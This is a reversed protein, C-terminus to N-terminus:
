GVPMTLLVTTGENPTSQISLGYREGYYLRLRHQVNLIGISTGEGQEGALTARLKQLRESSMGAGNDGVTVHLTDGVQRAAVEIRGHGECAEVGHLVANEVLPQLTFKLIHVRELEQPISINYSLRNQFRLKQMRLYDEVLEKEQSLEILDTKWDISKRILRSFSVIIDSTEHDKKKLVNTRISELCNFLFHPNMQSQLAKIEADKAKLEMNKAHLQSRYVEDILARIRELMESFSRSLVGIEDMADDAPKVEFDDNRVSDMRRMLRNVRRSFKRTFVVILLIDLAVATLCIILSLAITGTVQVNLPRTNSIEIITCRSLPGTDALPSIRVSGENTELSQMGDHLYERLWEYPAAESLNKGVYRRDTSSLIDYDPNLVLTTKTEDATEILRYLLREPINLRLIGPAPRELLVQELPIIFQSRVPIPKGIYGEGTHALAGAHVAAGLEDEDIAIILSDDTLVDRNATYIVATVDKIIQYALRAKYTSSIGFYDFYKVSYDTDPDYQKQLYSTLNSDYRINNSLDIYDGFFHYINNATQEFGSQLLYREQDKRSEMINSAFFYGILIVPMLVAFLFALLLKSRLPMNRIAHQYRNM